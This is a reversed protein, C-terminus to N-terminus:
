AHERKGFTAEAKNDYNGQIVKAFNDPKMLWGLDCSWKGARGCLFDSGAVHEFFRAFFEVAEESTTAYREGDDKVATMVWRWRARMAEANKGSWLERRPQPLEPLHNGFLALLDRHPCEPVAPKGAQGIDITDKQHISTYPGAPPSSGDPQRVVVPGAPPSSHDTERVREAPPSTRIASQDFAAIVDLQMVFQNKRGTVRHVTILRSAELWKVADIVATRGLCTWACIWPIPPWVSGDDNARDAMCMLVSKQAPSMVALRCINTVANSM